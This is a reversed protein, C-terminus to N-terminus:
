LRAVRRSIRHISEAYRTTFGVPRRDWEVGKVLTAVRVTAAISTGRM